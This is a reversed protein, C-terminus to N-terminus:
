TAKLKKAQRRQAQEIARAMHQPMRERVIMVAPRFHPRPEMKSTGFELYGAYDVPLGTGPQLTTKDSGIWVEHRKGTPQKVEWTYSRRLGGTRLGPPEGPQSPGPRTIMVKVTNTVEVGIISLAKDADDFSARVVLEVNKAAQAFPANDPM